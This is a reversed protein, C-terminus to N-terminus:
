NIEFDEDLYVFILKLWLCWVMQLLQRFTEEVFKMAFVNSFNLIFFNYRFNARFVKCSSNLLATMSSGLQSVTLVVLDFGLLMYIVLPYVPLQERDGSEFHSIDVCVYIQMGVVM